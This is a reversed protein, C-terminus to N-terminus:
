YDIVFRDYVIRWDAIFRPVGFRRGAQEKANKGIGAALEKQDSLLLMRQAVRRSNSEADLLATMKDELLEKLEATESALIPLGAAMCVAVPLVPAGPESFVLAADAAAPLKEFDMPGLREEASVFLRDLELVRAFRRLSDVMPGRGWVLVRWKPDLVNLMAAAWVSSRHGAERVSEGPALLVVDSDLIGLRQRIERREGNVADVRNKELAPGIVHCREGPVGRAVFDDRVWNTPCVIEIMGRGLLRDVWRRWRPYIMGQPSFIIRRFGGFAAALLEAAGWAQVVHTRRRPDFQLRVIAEPLNRFDGGRGLSAGSM